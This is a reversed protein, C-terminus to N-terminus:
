FCTHALRIVHSNLFVKTVFFSVFYRYLARCCCALIGSQWFYMVVLGAAIYFKRHDSMNRNYCFLAFFIGLRAILGIQVAELWRRAVGQDPQQPQPQAQQAQQAEQPPFPPPSAQPEQLQTRSTSSCDDHLVSQLLCSQDCDSMAFLCRRLIRNCNGKVSGALQATVPDSNFDTHSASDNLWEHAAQSSIADLQYRHNVCHGVITTTQYVFLVQASSSQGGECLILLTDNKGYVIGKYVVFLSSSLGPWNQSCYQLLDSVSLYISPMGGSPFTLTLERCRAVDQVVLRIPQDMARACGLLCNRAQKEKKSFFFVTRVSSSRHASVSVPLVLNM